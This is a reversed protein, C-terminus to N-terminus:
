NGETLFISDLGNSIHERHGFPPSHIYVMEGDDKLNFTWLRLFLTCILRVM